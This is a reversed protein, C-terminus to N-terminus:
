KQGEDCVCPWLLKELMCYRSYELYLLVSMMVLDLLALSASCNVVGRCSTASPNKQTALFLLSPFVHGGGGCGLCFRHISSTSPDNCKIFGTAIFGLRRIGVNHLTESSGNLGIEVNM